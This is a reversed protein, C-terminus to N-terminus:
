VQFRTSQSTEQIMSYLDELSKLLGWINEFNLNFLMGYLLALISFKALTFIFSENSKNNTNLQSVKQQQKSHKEELRNKLNKIESEQSSFKVSLERMLQEVKSIHEHQLQQVNKMSKFSPLISLKSSQTKIREEYDANITLLSKNTIKLDLLKRRVKPDSM